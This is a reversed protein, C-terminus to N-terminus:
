GGIVTKYYYKVDDWTKLADKVERWSTYGKKIDGWNGFWRNINLMLHAPIRRALEAEVDDFNERKDDVPLKIEVWITSDHFSSVCTAGTLTSVITAISQTNLKFTAQIRAKVMNRREDLTQFSQSSIGLAAEWTATRAESMTSLFADNYIFTLRCRLYDLEFGIANLIGEFEKLVQIVQPYMNYIKYGFFSQNPSTSAFNTLAYALLPDDTGVVIKPKDTTGINEITVKVPMQGYYPPKQDIFYWYDSPQKALYLTQDGWTIYAYTENM